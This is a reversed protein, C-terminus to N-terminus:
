QILGSPMTSASSSFVNLGLGAVAMLNDKRLTFGPVIVGVALALSLSAAIMGPRLFAFLPFFWGSEASTEASRLRIERLVDASFSSPLAPVAVQRYEALLGDFDPTKM